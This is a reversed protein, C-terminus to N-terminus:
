FYGGHQRGNASAKAIEKKISEDGTYTMLAEKFPGYVFNQGILWDPYLLGEDTRAADELTEGQHKGFPLPYHKAENFNM